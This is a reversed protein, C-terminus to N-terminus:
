PWGVFSANKREIEQTLPIDVTEQCSVTNCEFLVQEEMFVLRRYSLMAEQYMWARTAWKSDRVLDQPKSMSAVVMHRGTKRHQQPKRTRGRVGPLGFSSDQGASAIITVKTKAYAQDMSQIQM